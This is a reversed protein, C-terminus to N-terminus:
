FVSRTPNNVSQKNSQENPNSAGIKKWPFRLHTCTELACGAHKSQREATGSQIADNAVKSEHARETSSKPLNNGCTASLVNFSLNYVRGVLLRCCGPHFDHTMACNRQSLDLM